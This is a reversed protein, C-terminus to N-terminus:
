LPRDGEARFTVVLADRIGPRGEDVLRIPTVGHRVRHDDLLAADLPNALVFHDLEAGDSGAIRTVGEAVNSRGVLAVLVWDVGDRHLGEPTPYGAERASAEVRFQHVEVHWAKPPAPSAARFTTEALGMLALLVPSEIVSSQIPDFWRQVGGNLTNYDRSQFHPQHPKRSMGGLGIALAAHRRRRYRGGDAMFLDPGLDDWSAAFAPWYAMVAEGLWARMRDGVVFEFGPDRLAAVTAEISSSPQMDAFM